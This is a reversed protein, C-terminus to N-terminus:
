HLFQPKKKLEVLRTAMWYPDGKEPRYIVASVCVFLRSTLDSKVDICSAFGQLVLDLDDVEYKTLTEGVAQLQPLEWPRQNVVLSVGRGTSGIWHDRLKSHNSQLFGDSQVFVIPLDLLNVTAADVTAAGCFEPVAEPLPFQVFGTQALLIKNGESLRLFKM